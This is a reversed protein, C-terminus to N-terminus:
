FYKFFIKKEFVEYNIVEPAMYWSICFIFCCCCFFFLTGTVTSAAQVDFDLQKATGFDATFFSFFFINFKCCIFDNGLKLNQDKDLFVNEPKVDRHMINLKDLVSLALTM